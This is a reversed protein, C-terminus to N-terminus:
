IIDYGQEFRKKQGRKLLFQDIKYEVTLAKIEKLFTM